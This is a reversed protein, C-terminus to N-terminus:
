YLYRGLLGFLLICLPIGILLLLTGVRSRKVREAPIRDYETMVRNEVDGHWGGAVNRGFFSNNPM